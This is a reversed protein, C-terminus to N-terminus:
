ETKKLQKPIGRHGMVAMGAVMINQLVAEDSFYTEIWLSFVIRLFLLILPIFRDPIVETDKVFFGIILVPILIIRNELIFEWYRNIAM